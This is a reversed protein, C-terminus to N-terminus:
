KLLSPIEWNCVKDVCMYIMHNIHTYITHIYIYIYIYEYSICWTKKIWEKTPPFKPQKHGCVCVCVCVGLNTGWSPGFPVTFYVSGKHTPILLMQTSPFQLFYLFARRTLWGPDAVLKDESTGSCAVDSPASKGSWGGRWYAQCVNLTTSCQGLLGLWSIFSDM